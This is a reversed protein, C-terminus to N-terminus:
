LKGELPNVGRIHGAHGIVRFCIFMEEGFWNGARAKAIVQQHAPSGYAFTKMDLESQWVSFTAQRFIPIEGIALSYWLGKSDKVSPGLSAAEKWFAALKGLRVSARTLVAVPGENSAVPVTEGFPKRGSWAGHGSVPELILTYTECSFFHLYANIFGGYLSSLVENQPNNERKFAGPHVTFIGWQQWNIQRGFNRGRGTGLLKWFNIKKNFRLPLRFCLMAALAFFIFRKRYQVITLSAYMAFIWAIYPLYMREIRTSSACLKGLM